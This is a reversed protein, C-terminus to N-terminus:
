PYALLVNPAYRDRLSAIARAFGPRTTRCAPWSRCAPPPWGRRSGHRRRRGRRAAPAHVGLPRARRPAGRAQGPFAGARQFFLRLDAYYAQMTATNQLNTFLGAPEGQGSGPASQLLMYYSFVPIIGQPISEQIYLTVFSGNANWNAWGGGTNVGGGLYQYRFGAGTTARLQAAGGPGDSMGLQLTAPWGAPLAPLGESPTPAILAALGLM